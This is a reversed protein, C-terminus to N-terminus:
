GVSEIEDIIKQKEASRAIWYKSMDKGDQDESIKALILKDSTFGAKNMESFIVQDRIKPDSAAQAFLSSRDNEEKIEADLQDEDIKDQEAEERTKDIFEWGTNLRVIELAWTQSKFPINKGEERRTIEASAKQIESEIASQSEFGEHTDKYIKM